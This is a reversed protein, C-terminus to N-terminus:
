YMEATNGSASHDVVAADAVDAVDEYVLKASKFEILHPVVLFYNQRRRPKKSKYLPSGTAEELNKLYKKETKIKVIL